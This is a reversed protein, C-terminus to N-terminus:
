VCSPAGGAPQAKETEAPQEPTPSRAHWAECIGGEGRGEGMLTSPSLPVSM